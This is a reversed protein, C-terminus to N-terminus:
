KVGPVPNVVKGATEVAKDGANATIPIGLVSKPTEQKIIVVVSYNSNTIVADDTVVLGKIQDIYGNQPPIVSVNITNCGVLISLGLLCGIIKKNM